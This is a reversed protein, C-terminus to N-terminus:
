HGLFPNAGDNSGGEFSHLVVLKYWETPQNPANKAFWEYVVGANNAGGLMTMGYRNYAGDQVVVSAPNAGDACGPLACFDYGDAYTGTGHIGGHGNLGGYFGADVRDPWANGDNGVFSLGTSPAYPTTVGGWLPNFLYFSQTSFYGGLNGNGGETVSGESPCSGKPLSCDYQIEGGDVGGVPYAGDSGGCFSHLNTITWSGNSNPSLIFDIGQGCQGGYQTTGYLSGDYHDIILTGSDFPFAGDGRGTFTYIIKYSSAWAGLTLFMTMGLIALITKM